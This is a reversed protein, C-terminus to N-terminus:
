PIPNADAAPKAGADAPPPEPPKDAHSMHAVKEIAKEAAKEVKEVVKEVPKAYLPLEEVTGTAVKRLTVLRYLLIGVAASLVGIAILKRHSEIRHFVDLVQDTLWYSLTFLITVGPIAYLGDALMFRGIPVKLIGAMLFIPTRIGPTLRATLLIMIGRDHFNKEIQLRKEPPVFKRQVWANKLLRRGYRRGIGYLCADGTVVGLICVPLMVYWRLRNPDLAAEGPKLTDAHGVLVGATLVPLEEPIPLGFGSAILAGFVGIYGYDAFHELM